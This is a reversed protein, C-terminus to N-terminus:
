RDAFPELDFMQPHASPGGFLITCDPMERKVIRATAALTPASWVYAAFGIVDPRAERIREAYEEPSATASDILTVEADALAPDAILAAHVRRIGYSPYLEIRNSSTPQDVGPTLSALVVRRGGSM